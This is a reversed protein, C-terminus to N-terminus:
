ERVPLAIWSRRSRPEVPGHPASPRHDTVEDQRAVLLNGQEADRRLVADPVPDQWQDSGRSRLGQTSFRRERTTLHRDNRATLIAGALNHKTNMHLM